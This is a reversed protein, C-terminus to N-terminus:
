GNHNHPISPILVSDSDLVISMLANQAEASITRAMERHSLHSIEQRGELVSSFTMVTESQDFIQVCSYWIMDNPCGLSVRSGDSTNRSIVNYTFAFLQVDIDAFDLNVQYIASM